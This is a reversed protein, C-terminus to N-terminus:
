QAIETLQLDDSLTRWFAYTSQINWRFQASHADDFNFESMDQVRDDTIVGRTRLEAGAALTRSKTVYAFAEARVTVNRTVLRVNELSTFTLKRNSPGTPSYHYSKLLLGLAQPKFWQNNLSWLALASDGPLGFQYLAPMPLPTNDAQKFINLLGYTKRIMPDPDDDPTAVTRLNIPLLPTPDQILDKSPDYAMASMAANCMAYREVNMGTQIASACVVNGMSHAFLIKRDNEPLRKVFNALASGCIWARYESPNFTFGGPKLQFDHNEFFEDVANVMGNNDASYTPWRFSHFKGKFGQHWLRKYSTDSYNLFDVYRMRWGHVFVVCTKTANPDESYAWNGPNPIWEQLYLRCNAWPDAIDQADNRIRARQYMERVDLLQIWTGASEAILSGGSNHITVVLEGVGKTTGEFILHAISGGHNKWYSQPIFIVGDTNQSFPQKSIQETAAIDDTLYDLNGSASQNEWVQINPGRGSMHNFKLGVRFDGRKLSDNDIGANVSLRCFDELDRKTKIKTDAFDMENADAVAPEDIEVTDQDNNIWFRFPKDKTTDDIGNFTIQGDRNADVAVNVPQLLVHYEYGDVVPASFDFWESALKGAPICLEKPEVKVIEDPGGTPAPERATIKIFTQKRITQSPAMALLRMRTQRTEGSFLTSNSQQTHFFTSFSERDNKREWGNLLVQQEMYQPLLQSVQTIATKRGYWASNDPLYLGDYREPQGQTAPVHIGWALINRRGYYDEIFKDFAPPTPTSEVIAALESAPIGDGTYDYAPNLNGSVLDPYLAGWQDPTAGTDLLTRAFSREWDDDMGDQDADNNPVIQIISPQDDPDTTSATIRGDATIHNPALPNTCLSSLPVTASTPIDLIQLDPLRLLTGDTTIQFPTTGGGLLRSNKVSLCVIPQGGPAPQKVPSFARTSVNL